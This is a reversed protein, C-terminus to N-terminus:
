HGALCFGERYIFKPELLDEEPREYEGGWDPNDYHVFNIFSPLITLLPLLLSLLVVLHITRFKVSM